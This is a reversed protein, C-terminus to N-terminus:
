GRATRGFMELHNSPDGVRATSQRFGPTKKELLRIACGGLRM